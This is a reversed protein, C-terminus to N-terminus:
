NEILKVFNRKAFINDKERFYVGIYKCNRCRSQIGRYLLLSGLCIIKWIKLLNEGYQGSGLKRTWLRLFENAFYSVSNGISFLFSFNAKKGNTRVSLFDATSLVV